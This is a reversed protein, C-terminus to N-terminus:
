SFAGCNQEWREAKRFETKWFPFEFGYDSEWLTDRHVACLLMASILNIRFYLAQYLNNYIIQTLFSASCIRSSHSGVKLYDKFILAPVHKPIYVETYGSIM